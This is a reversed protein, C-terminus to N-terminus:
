NVCNPNQTRLIPLRYWPCTPYEHHEWHYGFHYCAIFSWFASYGISSARHHDSYGQIPQRHPLFTGFYFLQFSSLIMPLVWFLILNLPSVEFSFRLLIMVLVLGVLTGWLQKKELYGRMFKFYWPLVGYDPSGYFDPDSQSSPYRHHDIHSNLLTEYDLFAYLLTSISGLLNNIKRNQRFVTGHMADHATIFLGTQLFTRLLFLISVTFINYKDIDIFLLFILSVVWSFIIILAILTGLVGNPNDKNIM